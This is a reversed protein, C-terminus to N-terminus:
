RAYMHRGQSFSKRFTEKCFSPEGRSKNHHWTVLEGEWKTQPFLCLSFQLLLCRALLLLSLRAPQLLILLLYCSLRCTSVLHPAQLSPNPFGTVADNDYEARSGQFVEFPTSTCTLPLQSRQITNRKLGTGVRYIKVRYGREYRRCQRRLLFSVTVRM